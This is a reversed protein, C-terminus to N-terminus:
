HVEVRIGQKRMWSIADSIGLGKLEVQLRGVRNGAVPQISGGLINVDVTFTRVLQALLPENASDGLFTLTVSQWGLQPAIPASPPFIAQALAGHPNMILESISGQELVRGAQMVAAHDCIRRLVDMEHTILLITLGLEQNLQKLLDLVSLTTQPDLASTAEDSLLVKPNTALARAIGVRQKQGGSLQRPYARAKDKLGVLDLLEAVRKRRAPAEVGALELSFSINESVDRSNLLNFHQFIMGMQRRALRLEAESLATIEQGDVWVRGSDPKELLNICRILTSKGAGSEGLVGFIQGRCVQLSVDRLAHLEHGNQQNFSKQLHETRIM